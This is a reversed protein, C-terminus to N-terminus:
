LSDKLLNSVERHGTGIEWPLQWLLYLPSQVHRFWTVCMLQQDNSDKKEYLLSNNCKYKFHTWIHLIWGGWTVSSFDGTRLLWPVLGCDSLWEIASSFHSNRKGPKTLDLDQAGSCGPHASSPCSWWPTLSAPPDTGLRVALPRPLPSTTIGMWKESLYQWSSSM